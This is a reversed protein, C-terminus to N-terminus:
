WKHNPNKREDLKKLHSNPFFNFRTKKSIWILTPLIPLPLPVFRTCILFFVKVLDLSQHKLFTLEKVTVGQNLIYKKLISFAIITEEKELKTSDQLKEWNDRIYILTKNFWNKLKKLSDLDNISSVITDLQQKNIIVKM